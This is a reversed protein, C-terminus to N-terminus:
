RAACERSTGRCPGTCGGACTRRASPWASWRVEDQVVRVEVGGVLVHLLRELQGLLRVQDDHGVVVGADLLPAVVLVQHLLQLLGPVRDDDHGVERVDFAGRLGIGHDAVEAARRIRDPGGGVEQPASLGDAVVLIGISRLASCSDATFFGTRFLVSSRDIALGAGSRLAPLFLVHGCRIAHLRSVDVGDGSRLDPRPVLLVLHRDVELAHGLGELERLRHGQLARGRARDADGGVTQVVAQVVRAPEDHQVLLRHLEAGRRRGRRRCTCTQQSLLLLRSSDSSGVVGGREPVVVMGRDALLSTERVM